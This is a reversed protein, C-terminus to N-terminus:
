IRTRRQNATVAPWSEGTDDPETKELDHDTSQGQYSENVDEV